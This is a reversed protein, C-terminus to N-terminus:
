RSQPATTENGKNVMWPRITSWAGANDAKAADEAAQLAARWRPDAAGFKEWLVSWGARIIAAQVVTPQAGSIPQLVVALGRQYRDRELAAGPGWLVVDAGTPLLDTLFAAASKGEPMAAGHSNDRSEPTDLYLLRVKLEGSGDSPTVVITDGDTVRVVTAPIEVAVLVVLTMCLLLISRM